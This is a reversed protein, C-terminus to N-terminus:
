LVIDRHNADPIATFLETLLEVHFEAKRSTCRYAAVATRSKLSACRSVVSQRSYLFETSGADPRGKSVGPHYNAIIRSIFVMAAIVRTACVVEKNVRGPTCFDYIGTNDVNQVSNNRDTEPVYLRAPISCCGRRPIVYTGRLTLTTLTTLRHQLM